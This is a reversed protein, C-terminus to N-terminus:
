SLGFLRWSKRPPESNIPGAFIDFLIVGFSFIDSRATARKFNSILEPAAYRETGGQVGTATLTTADSSTVKILGFDSLAYRHSGDANRIRLINQPKLDRHYIGQSHIGELGALIDFLAQQPSGGLTHDSAMDNALSAEALEMIFFPPSDELNSGFVKVVNPHNIRGQYTAESFFRRRLEEASVLGQEIANVVAPSPDFFKLAFDVGLENTARDVRGFAGRGLTNQIQFISM